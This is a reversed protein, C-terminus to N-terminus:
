KKRTYEVEVVTFPDGYLVEDIKFTWKDPSVVTTTYRVAKGIEGTMPEDMEGFCTMIKGTRDLSGKGAILSTTMTDTWVFTFLKRNNDYGTLGLGTWPINNIKGDPTPMPMQGSFEHQLFRGGHIMKLTATGSTQMPPAAPDMFMKTTTTWTGEFQKLFEHQKGPKISQMYAEMAAQMAKPDHPDLDGPQAARGAALGAALAIGAAAAALHTWLSRRNM